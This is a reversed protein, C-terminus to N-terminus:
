TMRLAGDLRIVEGNIYTNEVIHAALEAFERPAGLRPPFPVEAELSERVAEPMALLMPSAMVGPAIAVTRIGFTKLDRAMPLTMSVIAGKSAAYACQGKQGDYAAASATNIIIGRERDQGQGENKVMVTAAAACVTFTGCVNIDMVRSFDELPMPNNERDILKKAPAIGACNVCVEITSFTELALAFARKVASEDTVNVDLVLCTNPYAELLSTDTKKDFVVVNAGKQLFNEAVARGLGSCGGTVVATSSAIRM